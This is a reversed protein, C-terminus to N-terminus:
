EGMREPPDNINVLILVGVAGVAIGGFIYIFVLWESDPLRELVVFSIFFKWVALYAGVLIIITGVVNGLVGM